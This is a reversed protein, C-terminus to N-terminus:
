CIQTVHYHHSVAPGQLGPGAQVALLGPLWNGRKPAKPVTRFLTCCALIAGVGLNLSRAATMDNGAEVSESSQEATRVREGGLKSKVWVRRVDNAVMARGLRSRKRM